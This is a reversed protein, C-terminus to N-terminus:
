LIRRRRLRSVGAVGLGALVLAGPAPVTSITTDPVLVHYDVSGNRPAVGPDIDPATFGANWLHGSVRGGKAFIDGWVPERWSDFQVTMVSTDSSEFKVGFLTEPISPNGNAAGHFDPGGGDVAPTDNFIDNATFTASTEIVLHSIDGQIGTSDFTYQYRWSLDANQTVTWSFVVDDDPDTVWSGGSGVLGGDATTLSGSYSTPGAQVPGVALFVAITAISLLYKSKGMM